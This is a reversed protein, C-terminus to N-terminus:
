AARVSGRPVEVRKGMIELLCATRGKVSAQFLGSLGQLPGDSIIVADGTNFKVQDVSEADPAPKYSMLAEMVEEPVPSPVFGSRLLDVCGRTNKIAGWPDRERDFQAFLYRPFMPRGSLIPMFVRYGQKTLEVAARAEQHSKALVCFWQKGSRTM